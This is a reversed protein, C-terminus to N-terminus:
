GGEDPLRQLLLGADYVNAGFTAPKTGYMKEYAAVYDQAVKKSPTSDAIEPLYDLPSADLDLKGAGALAGALLGTVSKTVSFILHPEDARVGDALWDVLLDDGHLVVLADREHGLVDRVPIRGFHTDVDVDLLVGKVERDSAPGQPDPQGHQRDASARLDDVHREASRQHLVHVLPTSWDGVVAVMDM